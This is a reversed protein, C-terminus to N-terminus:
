GPLAASAAQLTKIATDLPALAAEPDDGLDDLEPLKPLNALELLLNVVGLLRNLPAISDNLNQMQADFNGKACDLISNLVVNGPKAAKTALALIRVSQQILARLQLKLGLLGMVIASIIDKVLKPVSLPPLLHLLKDLAELLGPLCDELKQPNPPPGVVDPIAKVCDVLKKALDIIDFIPTLPALAGNVQAFLSRVIESPDGLEYGFQACVTTGGPFTICLEGTGTTLDVCLASLDGLIDAM